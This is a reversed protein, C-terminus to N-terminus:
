GGNKAQILVILYPALLLMDPWKSVEVDFSSTPTLVSGM